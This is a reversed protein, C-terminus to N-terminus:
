DTLTPLAWQLPFPTESTGTESNIRTKDKHQTKCPINQILGICKKIYSFEYVKILRIKKGTYIFQITQYMQYIKGCSYVTLKHCVPIGLPLVFL